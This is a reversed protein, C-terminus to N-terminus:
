LFFFFFFQIIKCQLFASIVIIITMEAKKCHLIMCNKNNKKQFYNKKLHPLKKCQLFYFLDFINKNKFFAFIQTPPDTFWSIFFFIAKVGQRGTDDESLRQLCNLGLDPGIFRGAQDPDLSNSM